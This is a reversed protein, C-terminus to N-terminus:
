KVHIYSMRHTLMIITFKVNTEATFTSSPHTPLARFLHTSLAFFSYFQQSFPTPTVHFPRLPSTFLAYHRHSFPTTAIDFPRLPSTLHGYHRHIIAKYTTVKFTQQNLQKTILSNHLLDGYTVKQGDKESVPM